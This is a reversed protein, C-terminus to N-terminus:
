HNALQPRELIRARRQALLTPDLARADSTWKWRQYGGASARELLPESVSAACTLGEALKTALWTSSSREESLIAILRVDSRFTRM